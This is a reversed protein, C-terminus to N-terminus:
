SQDGQERLVQVKGNINGVVAIVTYEDTIVQSIETEGVLNFIGYPNSNNQQVYGKQGNYPQWM